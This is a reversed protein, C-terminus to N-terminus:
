VAERGGALVSWSQCKSCVCGRMCVGVVRHWGGAFPLSRTARVTLRSVVLLGADLACVGCTCACGGVGCLATGVAAAIYHSWVPTVLVAGFSLCVILLYLYVFAADLTTGTFQVHLSWARPPPVVLSLM